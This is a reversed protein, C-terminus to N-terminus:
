LGIVENNRVAKEYRRGLFHASVVWLGIIVAFFLTHSIWILSEAIKLSLIIYCAGFGKAIKSGFADIWSKTKFRMENTTPIYLSERLPATFAYNLSRLIAYVILVGSATSSYLYYWIGIGSILPVILLSKREGFWSIFMRTGFLVIILGMAHMLFSQEVLFCTFQSISAAERVGITLRQYQLVVNTIEWFCVLGFIGLLYPVKCLALLGSIMGPKKYEKKKELAYVAEYGHMYDHPVYTMLLWVLLPVVLAALGACGLLLQHNRTDVILSPLGFFSSKMIIIAAWASLMGGVKSGAVILTYNKKAATPSTISNAFSWFLSVMFPSYGEIFVYFLWGFLRYPSAHTNLFGIESHGLFFAFFICGLGYIM